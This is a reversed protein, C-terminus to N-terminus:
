SRHEGDGHAGFSSEEEAAARIPLDLDPIRSGPLREMNERAVLPPRPGNGKAGVALQEGAATAVARDLDPFLFKTLFVAVSATGELVRPLSHGCLKAGSGSSPHRSAADAGFAGVSNAGSKPLHHPLALIPILNPSTGRYRRVISDHLCAQTLSM